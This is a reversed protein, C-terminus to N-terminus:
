YKEFFFYFFIKGTSVIPEDRTTTKLLHLRKMHELSYNGLSQSDVTANGVTQHQQEDAPIAFGDETTSHFQM